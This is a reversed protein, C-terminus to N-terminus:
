TLRTHAPAAPCGLANQECLDFPLCPWRKLGRMQSSALGALAHVPPVTVILETDPGSAELLQTQTHESPICSKAQHSAAAANQTASAHKPSLQGEKNFLSSLAANEKRLRGRGLRVPTTVVM